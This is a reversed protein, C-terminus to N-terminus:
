LYHLWKWHPRRQKFAEFGHCIPYMIALVVLWALYVLPLSYGYDKPWEPSWIGGGVVASVPGDTFYAVALALLHILYLHLLYFLLPTRGFTQLFALRHRPTGELLGLVVIAPGLTMLLYLLSPPYKHCNLFSLVTFTPDPYVRWPDPDGYVNSYRLGIFLATLAFGLLLLRRRTRWHELSMWQGFGYGVAMVGLWPILPYYPNIKWDGFLPVDDGTHLVAWWPGFWGLDGPKVSDFANHSIIMLLGFCVTWALPLKVLVTLLAMSWAIAWLVGGDIVQFDNRFNWAFAEVTCTLLLLVLSRELLFRSIPADPGRRAAWLYASTGALFV